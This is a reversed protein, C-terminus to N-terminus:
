AERQYADREQRLDETFVTVERALSRLAEMENRKAHEKIHLRMQRTVAKARFEVRQTLLSLEEYGDDNHNNRYYWRVTNKMLEKAQEDGLEREYTDFYHKQLDSLM